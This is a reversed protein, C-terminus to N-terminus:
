RIKMIKRPDSVIVGGKRGKSRDRKFAGLARASGLAGRTSGVKGVESFRGPRNDLFVFFKM